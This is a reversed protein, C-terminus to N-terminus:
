ASFTHSAFNSHKSVNKAIFYSIPVVYLPVTINYFIILPMTSLVLAYSDAVRLGSVMSVLFGYIYYDLPLM